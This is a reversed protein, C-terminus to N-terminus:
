QCRTPVLLMADDVIRDVLQQRPLDKRYITLDDRDDIPASLMRLDLADVIEKVKQHLANQALDDALVDLAVALINMLLYHKLLNLLQRLVVVEGWHRFNLENLATLAIVILAFDLGGNNM